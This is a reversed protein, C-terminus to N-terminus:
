PRRPISFKDATAFILRGGVYESDNNLALQLTRKSIDTHFDILRGHAQCRRIIIENYAGFISELKDYLDQEILDILSNRDLKIKLDEIEHISM